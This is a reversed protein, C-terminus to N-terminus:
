SPYTGFVTVSYSDLICDSLDVQSVNMGDEHVSIWGAMPYFVALEGLQNFILDDMRGDSSRILM